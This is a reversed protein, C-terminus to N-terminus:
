HLAPRKWRPSLCSPLILFGLRPPTPAGVGSGSPFALFTWKVSFFDGIKPHRRLSGKWKGTSNISKLTDKRCCESSPVATDQHKGEETSLVQKFGTPAPQSLESPPLSVCARCLPMKNLTSPDQEGAQVLNVMRFDQSILDICLKCSFWMRIWFNHFQKPTLSLDRHTLVAIWMQKWKVNRVAAGFAGASHLFLHFPGIPQM